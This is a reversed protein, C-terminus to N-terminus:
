QTPDCPLPGPNQRLMGFKLAAARDPHDPPLHRLTDRYLNYAKASVVDMHQMIASRSFGAEELTQSLGRRLGHVRHPPGLQYKSFYIKLRENLCDATLAKGQNGFMYPGLQYGPSLTSWFQSLRWPFNCEREGVVDTYQFYIAEGPLVKRTKSFMVLQFGDGTRPQYNAPELRLGSITQFDGIHIQGVDEGRKGIAAALCLAASDRAQITKSYASTQPDGDICSLLPALKEYSWPVAGRSAAGERATEKPFGRLFCQVEMSDVPNGRGTEPDWPVRRGFIRFLNSLHSVTVSVTGHSKKGSPTKGGTYAWGELFHLIHMPNSLAWCQEAGCPQHAMASSFLRFTDLIKRQTGNDWRRLATNLTAQLGAASPPPNGTLQAFLLGAQPRTAPTAAPLSMQGALHGALPGLAAPTVQDPPRASPWNVLGPSLDVRLAPASAVALTTHNAPQQALWSVYPQDYAQLCM